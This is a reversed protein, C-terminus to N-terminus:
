GTFCNTSCVGPSDILYFSGDGFYDFAPFGAIDLEFQESAIERVKRNEYYEKKIECDPEPQALGDPFNEGLFAPGVVIDTSSPFRAPDGLHDWHSHSDERQEYAPCNRCSTPNPLSAEM